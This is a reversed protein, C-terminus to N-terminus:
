EQPEVPPDSAPPDEAPPDSAPPDEAPPDETPPDEVPPDEAPPDSAPPDTPKEDETIEDSPKKEETNGEENPDGELEEKPISNPDLEPEEGEELEEETIEPEATRLEEIRDSIEAVKSSPKYGEQGFVKEHFDRVNSYLSTPVIVSMEEIYAFAYNYPWGDGTNIKYKGVNVGLSLIDTLKLNTEVMPAIKYVLKKMDKVKMAKIKDVVANIVIRQRETRMTDGGVDYRMRGYGLAHLGDLTQVGAKNLYYYDDLRDLAVASTNAAANMEKLENSQLDIEIGGVADVTEVVIEWNVIVYKDINLDLSQNITQLALKVGGFFLGTNMRQYTSTNGIKTFTDRYLSTLTVDYTKTNISAVMMMDSRGDELDDMDRSDTGLLLINIFGDVPTISLEYDTFVEDEEEPNMQNLLNQIFGFAVTSLVIAIILISASTIYTIKKWKKLGKFWEKFSKRDKKAKKEKKETPVELTKEERLTDTATVEVGAINVTAVNSKKKELKQQEKKALKEEKALRKEEAKKLKLEEKLRAEAQKRMKKSRM